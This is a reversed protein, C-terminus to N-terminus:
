EKLKYFDKNLYKAIDHVEEDFLEDSEALQCAQVRAEIDKFMKLETNKNGFDEHNHCQLCSAQNFLEKGEKADSFLSTSLLIFVFFIKFYNM